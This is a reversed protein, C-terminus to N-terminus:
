TGSYHCETEREDLLDRYWMSVKDNVRLQSISVTRARLGKVVLDKKPDGVGGFKHFEILQEDSAEPFKEIFDDYWGEREERVAPVYLTAASWIHAKGSHLTRHHKGEGDWKLEHLVMPSISHDCIILTFPAIGTLSYSRIFAWVSDAEYLDLLMKGRSMRYPPEHKYREFAGNLICASWKGDSAIWTGGGDPDIPFMVKKDGLPVMSPPLAQSRSILEDRNHTFLFGNEGKPFYTLTCM